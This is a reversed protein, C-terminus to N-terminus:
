STLDFSGAIARFHAAVADFGTAPASCTVAYVQEGDVIMSALVRLPRGNAVHEFSAEYGTRGRVVLARGGLQRAALLQASHATASEYYQQASLGAPIRSTALSCNPYFGGSSPEPTRCGWLSQGIPRLEQWPAECAIAYSRVPPAALPRGLSAERLIRSAEAKAALQDIDQQILELRKSARADRDARAVLWLALGGGLVIAVAPALWRAFRQATSARQPVAGGSM